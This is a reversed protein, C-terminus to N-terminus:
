IEVKELITVAEAAEKVGQWVNEAPLAGFIRGLRAAKVAIPVKSTDGRQKGRSADYRRQWEVVVDSNPAAKKKEM